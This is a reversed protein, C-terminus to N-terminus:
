EDIEVEVARQIKPVVIHGQVIVFVTQDEDTFDEDTPWHGLFKADDDLEESLYECLEDKGDCETAYATECNGDEFALVYFKSM